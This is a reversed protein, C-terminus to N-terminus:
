SVDRLLSFPRIISRSFKAGHIRYHSQGKTEVKSKLKGKNIVATMCLLKM